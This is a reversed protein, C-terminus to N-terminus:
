HSDEGQENFVLENGNGAESTQKRTQRSEGANHGRGDWGAMGWNMMGNKM